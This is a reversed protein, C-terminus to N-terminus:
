GQKYREGKFESNRLTNIFAKILRSISKVEEITSDFEEKSIYNRDYARYLQSRVEGASGKAIILFNVFEKNGGREFGEAINDMISGCAGNIQRILEFDRKFPYRNIFKNIKSNLCRAKQWSVIEEFCNIKSM